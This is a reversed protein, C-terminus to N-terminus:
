INHYQQPIAFTDCYTTTLSTVNEQSKMSAFETKSGITKAFNTEILSKDCYGNDCYGLRM